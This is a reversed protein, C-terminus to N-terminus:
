RFLGHKYRGIRESLSVCMPFNPILSLGQIFQRRKDESSTNLSLRSLIYCASNLGFQLNVKNTKRKATVDYGNIFSRPFYSFKASGECSGPVIIGHTWLYTGMEKYYGYCMVCLLLWVVKVELRVKLGTWEKRKTISVILAFIIHKHFWSNRSVDFIHWPNAPFNQKHTACEVNSPM